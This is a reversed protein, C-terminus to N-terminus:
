KGITDKEVPGTEGASIELGRACRNSHVGWCGTFTTDCHFLFCADGIAEVLHTCNQVWSGTVFEVLTRSIIEGRDKGVPAQDIGERLQWWHRTWTKLIETVFNWVQWDTVLIGSCISPIKIYIIRRIKDLCRFCFSADDIMLVERMNCHFQSAEFPWQSQPQALVENLKRPTPTPKRLSPVLRLSGDFQSHISASNLWIM